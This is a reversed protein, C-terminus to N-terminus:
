KLAEGNTEKSSTMIYPAADIFGDVIRALKRMKLNNISQKTKFLRVMQALCAIWASHFFSNDLTNM